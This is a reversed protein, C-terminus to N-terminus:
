GSTDPLEGIITHNNSPVTHFGLEVGSNLCRVSWLEGALDPQSISETPNKGSIVDKSPKKDQKEQKRVPKEQFCRRLLDNACSNGMESDARFLGIYSVIFTYVNIYLPMCVTSMDWLLPESACDERVLVGPSHISVPPWPDQRRPGWHSDVLGMFNFHVEAEKIEPLNTTIRGM